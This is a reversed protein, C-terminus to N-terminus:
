RHVEGVGNRVAVKGGGCLRGGCSGAVVELQEVVKPKAVIDQGSVRWGERVDVFEVEAVVGRAYLGVEVVEWEREDEGGEIWEKAWGGRPIGCTEGREKEADEEEVEQCAAKCGAGGPQRGGQGRQDGGTKGVAEDRESATRWGTKGDGKRREEGVSEVAGDAVTGGEAPCQDQEGEEAGIGGVEVDEVERREGGREEDNKRERRASGRGAFPRGGSKAGRAREQGNQRERQEEKAGDGVDSEEGM